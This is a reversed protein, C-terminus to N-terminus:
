GFLIGFCRRTYTGAVLQSMVTEPLPYRIGWTFLRLSFKADSLSELKPGWGLTGLWRRFDASNRPKEPSLM